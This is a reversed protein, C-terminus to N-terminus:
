KILATGAARYRECHVCGHQNSEARINTLAAPWTTATDSLRRDRCKTRRPGVLDPRTIEQEECGKGHHGDIPHGQAVLHRLCLSRRYRSLLVVLFLTHCCTDQSFFSIPAVIIFIPKWRFDPKCIPEITNSIREGIGVRRLVNMITTSRILISFYNKPLALTSNKYKSTM